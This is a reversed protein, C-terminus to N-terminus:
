FDGINLHKRTNRLTNLLNLIDHRHFTEALKQTVNPKKDANAASIREMVHHVMSLLRM